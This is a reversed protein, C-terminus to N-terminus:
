SKILARAPNGIVVEGPAVDKTVVAGMGVVAGAGIVLPKDPTGQKIVAGTGIYAHDGIHVNGNCSVRPAFTVYDGIICDHAVYSYINCQFQCGIQASATVMTRACFVAGDGVCADIGAVYDPAFLSFAALGAAGCRLSLQERIRGDGIALIVDDGRQMQDLRYVPIGCVARAGEQGGTDDVFVLDAPDRGLRRLADQTPAVLERGFGGCGYIALKM